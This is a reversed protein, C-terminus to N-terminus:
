RRYVIARPAAFSDIGIFGFGSDEFGGVEDNTTSHTNMAIMPAMHAMM